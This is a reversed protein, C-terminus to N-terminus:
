YAAIFVGPSDAIFFSGAEYGAALGPPLMLSVSWARLPPWLLVSVGSTVPVDGTEIRSHPHWTPACSAPSGLWSTDLNHNFM